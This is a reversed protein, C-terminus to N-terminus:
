PGSAENCLGSLLNDPNYAACQFGSPRRRAEFLLPYELNGCKNRFVNSNKNRPPHLQFNDSIIEGSRRKEYWSSAMKRFVPDTQTQVAWVRCREENAEPEHDWLVFFLHPMQDLSAMRGATRGKTGAKIVGNFRPTDIAAWTSAGKVDSGDKLDSGKKRKLGLIGTLASVIIQSWGRTDTPHPHGYKEAYPLIGRFSEYHLDLLKVTDRVPQDTLAPIHSVATAAKPSKQEAPEPSSSSAKKV